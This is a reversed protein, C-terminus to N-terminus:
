LAIDSKESFKIKNKPFCNNKMLCINDINVHLPTKKFSNKIELVTFM